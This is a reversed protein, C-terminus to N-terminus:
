RTFIRIILSIAFTILSFIVVIMLFSSMLVNYKLVDVALISQSLGFANLILLILFIFILGKFAGKIDAPSLSIHASICIALFLFLYFGINHFNEGAFVLKLLDLYATFIGNFSTVSLTEVAIGQTVVTLFSELVQPLLLGMLVMIVLLGGFIPAIGIFFNGVQHYINKANYTHNVYGMVGDRDPRQFLKINIIKHGFILATIAHSLEHIPTGIVGTVMIANRGLSKQFNRNTQTELVGLLLGALIIVGTFYLTELGTKVFLDIIFMLM